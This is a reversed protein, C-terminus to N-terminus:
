NIKGSPIKVLLLLLLKLGVKIERFTYGFNLYILYQVEEMGIVVQFKILKLLNKLKEFKTFKNSISEKEILTFFKFDKRTVNYWFSSNDVKDSCTYKCNKILRFSEM